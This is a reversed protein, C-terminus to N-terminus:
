ITDDVPVTFVFTAGEGSPSEVDIRGGHSEIIKRAINLGIGMGDVKTTVFPDFLTECAEAAIGPGSDRVKVRVAEDVTEATIDIVRPARESQSLADLANQVLNVLVQRIQVPYGRVTPLEECPAVDIRVALETAQGEFLDSVQLIIAGLDFAVPDGSDRAIMNRIGKIIGDASAAQDRIRQTAQATREADLRGSEAMMGLASAYNMIATLPQALDHALRSALTGLDTLRGLHQVQKWLDKERTELSVRDSIDHIFAVHIDRGGDAFYTASIEVPFITGDKKRHFRVPVKGLRRDVAASTRDPEASMDANTRQRMEDISYGYLSCAAPNADLIRRTEADILFIPFPASGYLADVPVTSGHLDTDTSDTPM